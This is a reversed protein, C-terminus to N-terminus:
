MDRYSKIREEPADQPEADKDETLPRYGEYDKGYRMRLDTEDGTTLIDGSVVHPTLMVLLETRETANSSSKFILGILPIKSLFPVGASSSVKEERQLGGIIITSGDKVMVTTEATSTDIIPITNGSPTTLSSVVSSIEPKVKM